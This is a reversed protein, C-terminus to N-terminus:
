EGGKQRFRVLVESANEELIGDIEDLLEDLHDVLEADHATRGTPVTTPPRREPRTTKQM